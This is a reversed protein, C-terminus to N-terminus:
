SVCYKIELRVKGESAMSTEERVSLQIVGVGHREHLLSRSVWSDYCM